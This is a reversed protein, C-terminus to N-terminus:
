IGWASAGGLGIEDVRSLELLAPDVFSEKKNKKTPYTVVVSMADIAEDMKRELNNNADEVSDEPAGIDIINVSDGKTIERSKKKKHKIDKAEENNTVKMEDEQLKSKKKRKKDSNNTTEANEVVKEDQLEKRKKTTGLDDTSESLPHAKKSGILQDQKTDVTFDFANEHVAKATIKDIPRGNFVHLNPM